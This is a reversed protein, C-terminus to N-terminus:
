FCELPPPGTYRGLRHRLVRQELEGSDRPQQQLKQTFSVGPGRRQAAATTAAAAAAASEGSRRTEGFEDWRLNSPLSTRACFLISRIPLFGRM